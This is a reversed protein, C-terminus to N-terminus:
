VTRWENGGMWCRIELDQLQPIDKIRKRLGELDTTEPITHLYDFNAPATSVFVPMYNDDYGLMVGLEPHFLRYIFDGRIRRQAFKYDNPPTEMVASVRGCMPCRPSPINAQVAATFGCRTCSKIVQNM